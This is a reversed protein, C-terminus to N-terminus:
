EPRYRTASAVIVNQYIKRARNARAKALKLRKSWTYIRSKKQAEENLRQVLLEHAHTIRERYTSLDQEVKERPRGLDYRGVRVTGDAPNFNDQLAVKYRAFLLEWLDLQSNFDQIVKSPWRPGVIVAYLRPEDSNRFFNDGEHHLVYRRM